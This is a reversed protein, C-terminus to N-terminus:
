GHQEEGCSGSECSGGCSLGEPKERVGIMFGRREPSDNVFDVVAGGFPELQKALDPHMLVEIGNTEYTNYSSEPEDLALGLVPGSWGFGMFNVFLSKGKHQESNLVKNIEDRALDSIEIM